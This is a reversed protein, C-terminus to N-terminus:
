TCPWTSLDVARRPSDDYDERRALTVRGCEFQGFPDRSERGCTSMRSPHYGQVIGCHGDCLQCTIGIPTRSVTRRQVVGLYDNQLTQTPGNVPTLLFAIGGLRPGHGMRVPTGSLYPSADASPVM